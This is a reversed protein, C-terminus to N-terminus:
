DDGHFQASPGIELALFVNLMYLVHYRAKDGHIRYDELGNENERKRKTNWRHSVFIFVVLCFGDTM